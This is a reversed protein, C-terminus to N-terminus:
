KDKSAEIQSKERPKITSRVVMFKNLTDFWFPAGLSLAFATILWGALVRSMTALSNAPTQSKFHAWYLGAPYRWGIPLLEKSTIDDFAHVSSRMRDTLRNQREAAVGTQDAADAQQKQMYDSAANLMGQRADRDFWLVRGLRVSDVNFCIALLLGIILLVSQTYKKYWGSVRDMADNYWNELNAQFREADGKADLALARLAEVAKNHPDSAHKDILFKAIEEAPVQQNRSLIDIM